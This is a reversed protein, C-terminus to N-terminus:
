RAVQLAPTERSVTEIKGAQRLHHTMLAAVLKRAGEGSLARVPTHLTNEPLRM